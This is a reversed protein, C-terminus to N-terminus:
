LQEKGLRNFIKNDNVSTFYICSSTFTISILNNMRIKSVRLSLITRIDKSIKLLVVQMVLIAKSVLFLLNYLQIKLVM